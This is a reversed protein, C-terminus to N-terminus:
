ESKVKPRCKCIVQGTGKVIRFVIYLLIHFTVLLVGIVDLMLFQYWPMNLAHSILHDGGYMIVHEIWYVATDIPKLLQNHFLESARLINHRYVYEIQYGNKINFNNILKWFVNM